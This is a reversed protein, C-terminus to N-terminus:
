SSSRISTRPPDMGPQRGTRSRMGWRRRATPPSSSTVCTGTSASRRAMHARFWARLEQSSRQGPPILTAASLDGSLQDGLQVAPSSRPPPPYGDLVAALRATLEEKSGSGSVELVRALGILESKLWYWRVLEAGTLTPVLDPRQERAESM